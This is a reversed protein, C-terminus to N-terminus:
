APPGLTPSDTGKRVAKREVVHEARLVSHAELNGTFDKLNPSKKIPFGTLIGGPYLSFFGLIM